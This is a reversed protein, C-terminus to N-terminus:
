TEDKYFDEHGDMGDEDNIGVEGDEGDKVDKINEQGDDEDGDDMFLRNMPSLTHASLDGLILAVMLMM